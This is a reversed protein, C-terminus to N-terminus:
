EKIHKDSIIKLKYLENKGTFQMCVKLQLFPSNTKKSLTFPKIQKMDAYTAEGLKIWHSLKAKATLGIVGAHFTDDLIYTSGNIERIHASKGAGVGQIVQIEDGVGYASIDTSTTFRDWDTFTIDAETSEDEETKYKLIIKDTTNLLKKYITYVKQWTEETDSMMLITEFYGYKQTTDLTDDCFIGYETTASSGTFYQGGALLVGNNVYGSEDTVPPNYLIAGVGSLRQQGYDDTSPFTYKNYFGVEPVYEYIGSTLPEFNGAQNAIDNRLLVLITGYDTVTIGNPHVFRTNTTTSGSFNYPYKRFLRAVEAFGAGNYRQLKGQADFIHLTGNLITGSMVGSELEYKNSPINASGDWEYVLGKGTDVNTLGIWISNRLSKLMSISWSSTLQLDIAFPSSTTSQLVNSTNISFVKCGGETIYLRAGFVELLHPSATLGSSIVETDDAYVSDSTTTYIKANFIEMDSYSDSFATDNKYLTFPKSPTAGGQFINNDAVFYYTGNHFKIAVPTEMGSLTTNSSVKKMVSTRIAGYNGSLDLNYSSVIDGYTDGLGTQKLIKNQPIIM